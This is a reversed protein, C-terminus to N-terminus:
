TVLRSARRLESVSQYCRHRISGMPASPAHIPAGGQLLCMPCLGSNPIGPVSPLLQWGQEKSGAAPGRQAHGNRNQARPRPAAGDTGEAHPGKRGPRSLAAGALPGERRPRTQEQGLM